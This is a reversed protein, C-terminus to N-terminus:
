IKLKGNKVVDKKTKKNELLIELREIEEKLLSLVRRSRDRLSRSELILQKLEYACTLNGAILFLLENPDKPLKLKKSLKQESVLDFIRLAEKSYSKIEKIRTKFESDIKEEEDDYEYARATFYPKESILSSIKFRSRGETLINMKEEELNEVDVIEAITGVEAIVNDNSLVVGFRKDNELCGSIMEKYKDEFIHLPLNMGPFLVVEPLPFLPLNFTEVAM